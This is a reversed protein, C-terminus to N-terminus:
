TRRVDSNSGTFAGILSFLAGRSSPPALPGMAFLIKRLLTSFKSVELIAVFVLLTFFIACALLMLGFGKWAMRGSVSLTLYIPASLLFAISWVLTIVMGAFLLGYLLMKPRSLDKKPRLPESGGEEKAQLTRFRIQGFLLLLAFAILM